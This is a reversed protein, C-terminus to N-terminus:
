PRALGLCILAIMAVCFVVTVVHQCTGQVIEVRVPDAPDFVIRVTTGVPLGDEGVVFTIRGLVPGDPGEFMVHTGEPVTRRFSVDKPDCVIAETKIWRRERYLGLLTRWTLFTPVGLM